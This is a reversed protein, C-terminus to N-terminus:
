CDSEVLQKTKQAISAISNHSLNKGIRYAYRFIGENLDFEAEDILSGIQNLFLHTYRDAYFSADKKYENSKGLKSRNEVLELAFEAGFEMFKIGREWAKIGWGNGGNAEGDYKAHERCDGHAGYCHSIGILKEELSKRLREIKQEEGLFRLRLTSPWPKGEWLFHWSEVEAKFENLVPGVLKTLLEDKSKVSQEINVEVWKLVLVLPKM